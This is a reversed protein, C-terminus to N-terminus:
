AAQPRIGTGAAVMLIVAMTSRSVFGALARPRSL